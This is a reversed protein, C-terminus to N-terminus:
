SLFAVLLQSLLIKLVMATPYVLAYTINSLDGHTKENAYAITASQTQVGAILGYLTTMPIKFLKYGILLALSSYALSVCAAAAVVAPGVESLTGAVANGARTGIGALFLVMGLERLTRNVHYPLVWLMKGTRSVAGLILAVLLPGGSFGLQFTFGGPLPIPLAGVILGLAIGVSVSIVDVEALLRFSNGLYDAVAQLRDRPAVVRVQDGMELVFDAHPLLEVDGRRIRSITAGFRHRLDLERLKRGAVERNSVIIRRVDVQSRDLHPHVESPRGLRAAFRKVETEPGVLTVIDGVALVFSGDVTRQEGARMVRSVVVQRRSQPFVEAISRGAIQSSTVEVDALVIPEKASTDLSRSEAAFDVRCIRAVVHMSLMVGLVGIPYALSYGVVTQALLAQLDGGTGRLTLFELVAALSPTSTLTGVYVGATTAASLRLAKGVAATLLTAVAICGVGYLTDRLGKRTLSSFFSPGASLGFTYVFLVLGFQYVIPPLTLEPYLAGIALGVFLIASVGLSFGFLRIRGLVHGAGTVIFLLLLPNERLFAVFSAM